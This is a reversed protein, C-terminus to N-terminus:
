RLFSPRFAEYIMARARAFIPCSFGAFEAVDAVLAAEREDECVLIQAEGGSTLFEYVKAQM